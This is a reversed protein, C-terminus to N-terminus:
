RKNKYYLSIIIFVLALLGISGMVGITLVTWLTSSTELTRGELLQNSNADWLFTWNTQPLVSLVNDLTVLLHLHEQPTLPEHHDNTRENKIHILGLILSEKFRSTNKTDATTKSLNYAHNMSTICQLQVLFSTLQTTLNFQGLGQDSGSTHQNNRLNNNIKTTLFSANIISEDITHIITLPTTFYSLVFAQNNENLSTNEEIQNLSTNIIQDYTEIITKIEQQKSYNYTFDYHNSLATLAIAADKSLVPTTNILQQDNKSSLIHDAIREKTSEASLSSPVMHLLNLLYAHDLLSFNTENKSYTELIGEISITLVETSTPIKSAYSVLIHSTLIQDIFSLNEEVSLQGTSHNLHHQFWSLSENQLTLLNNRQLTPQGANDQAQLLPTVWTSTLFLILVCIIIGQKRWQQNNSQM